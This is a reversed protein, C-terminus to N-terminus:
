RRSAPVPAVTEGGNPKGKRGLDAGQAALILFSIVVAAVAGWGFGHAFSTNRPLLYRFRITKAEPKPTPLVPQTPLPTGIPTPELMM